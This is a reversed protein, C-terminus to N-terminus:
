FIRNVRATDFSSSPLSKSQKEEEGEVEDVEKSKFRARLGDGLLSFGAAVIMIIAAPILSLWPARLLYDQYQAIMAGWDPNPPRVALGLYSLGAYTFVVTGVDLTAYVLLIPISVAIIHRVVIRYSPVGSIKAAEVYNAGSLRLAEGRSLRAYQPWWIVSLALMVNVPSVGLIVTVALGTLVPFTFFVDTVRMLRKTMCGGKFGAFSGIISGVSLGVFVVVVSVMADNPAGAIIRSLLDMGLDTTGFPHLLM